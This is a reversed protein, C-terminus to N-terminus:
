AIKKSDFQLNAKLLRFYFFIVIDLFSFNWNKKLYNWKKGNQDCFLQVYKVVNYFNMNKQLLFASKLRIPTQFLMM